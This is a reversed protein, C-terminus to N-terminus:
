RCMHVLSHSGSIFHVCECTFSCKGNLFITDGTLLIKSLRKGVVQLAEDSKCLVCYSNRCSTNMATVKHRLATFSQIRSVRYGSACLLSVFMIIHLFTMFEACASINFIFDILPLATIIACYTNTMALSNSVNANTPCSQAMRFASCSVISTTDCPLYMTFRLGCLRWCDWSHSHTSRCTVVM